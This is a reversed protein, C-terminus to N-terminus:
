PVALRPPGAVVRRLVRGCWSRVWERWAGNDECGLEIGRQYGLLNGCFRAADAVNQIGFESGNLTLLDAYGPRGASPPAQPPFSNSPRHPHAAILEEAQRELQYRAATTRIAAIGEEYIAAPKGCVDQAIWGLIKTVLAREGPVSGDAREAAALVTDGFVHGYSRCRTIRSSFPHDKIESATRVHEASNDLSAGQVAAYFNGCNSSGSGGIISLPAFSYAFSDMRRTLVLAAYVDPNPSRFFRADPCGLQVSRILATDVFGNGYLSPLHFQNPMGTFFRKLARRGSRRVVLPDFPITLQHRYFPEPFNPWSYGVASWALAPTRYRGLIKAAMSVGGPLLGDDDGLYGVFGEKVHSLAFEYNTTMEVRRGTNVYRIRPDKFSEVVARTNDTSANDSVLITLDAYDQAVVTALAHQLTAARERTPIVVTFKVPCLRQEVAPWFTM